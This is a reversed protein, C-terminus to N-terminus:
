GRVAWDLYGDWTDWAMPGQEDTVNGDEDTERAAVPKGMCWSSVRRQAGSPYFEWCTGDRSGM